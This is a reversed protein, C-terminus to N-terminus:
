LGLPRELRVMGSVPVLKREDDTTERASVVRFGLKEYLGRAPEDTMGTDLAVGLEMRDAGAIVREMLATAIGQNRQKETVALISIYLFGRDVHPLLRNMVRARQALEAVHRAGAARAFIVGTGLKLAGFLRGPFAIAIGTLEHDVEALLSFRHALETRDARYASEIARIATLRDGLVIELSPIAELIIEAAEPAVRATGRRLVPTM